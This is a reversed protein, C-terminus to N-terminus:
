PACFVVPGRVTEDSWMRFALAGTDDAISILTGGTPRRGMIYIDNAEHQIGQSLLWARAEDALDTPLLFHSVPSQMLRALGVFEEVEPIM